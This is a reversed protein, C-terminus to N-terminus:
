SAPGLFSTFSSMLRISALCSMSHALILFGWVTDLVVRKGEGAGARTGACVCVCVRARAVDVPQEHHDQDGERV